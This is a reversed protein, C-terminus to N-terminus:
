RHQWHITLNTGTQQRQPREHVHGRACLEGKERRLPTVQHLLLEELKM